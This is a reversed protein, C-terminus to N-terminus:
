GTKQEGEEDTDQEKAGPRLGFDLEDKVNEEEVSWLDKVLDSYREFLNIRAVYTTFASDPFVIHAFAPQAPNLSDPGHILIAYLLSGNPPDEDFLKLESARAYTERFQATRIIKGPHEVANITLLANNSRLLTYFSTKKRNQEPSAKIEPYSEALKRMQGELFARRQHPYLDHAEPHAHSDRCERHVGSYGTALLRIADRLFDDSYSELFDRKVDEEFGYGVM